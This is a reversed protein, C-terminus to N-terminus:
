FFYLTAKSFPNDECGSAVQVYEETPDSTLFLNLDETAERVAESMVKSALCSEMFKSSGCNAGFDEIYRRGECLISVFIRDAM